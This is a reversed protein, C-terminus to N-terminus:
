LHEIVWLSSFGVEEARRAYGALQRVQEYTADPWAYSPLRLGFKMGEDGNRRRSAYVGSEIGSRGDRWEASTDAEPLGPYPSKASDRRRIVAREWKSSGM